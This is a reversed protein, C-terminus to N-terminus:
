QRDTSGSEGSTTKKRASSFALLSQIGQSQLFSKPVKVAIPMPSAPTPDPAPRKLENKKVTPTVPESLALEDESVSFSTRNSQSTSANSSAYDRRYRQHLSSSSSPDSTSQLMPMSHGFKFNVSNYAIVADLLSQHCQCHSSKFVRSPKKRRPCSLIGIVYDHM